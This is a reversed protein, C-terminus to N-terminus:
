GVGGGGGREEIGDGGEERLPYIARWFAAGVVTGGLGLGESSMCRECSWDVSERDTRAVQSEDVSDEKCDDACGGAVPVASANVSFPLTNPLSIM